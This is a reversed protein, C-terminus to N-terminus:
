DAKKAAAKKAAPKAAKSAAQATEQGNEAAEAQKEHWRLLKKIRRARKKRVVYPNQPMPRAKYGVVGAQDIKEM